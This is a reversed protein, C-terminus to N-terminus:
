RSRALSKRLSETIDWSAEQIIVAVGYTHMVAIIAAASITGNMVVLEEPKM